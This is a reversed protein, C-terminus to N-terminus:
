ETAMNTLEYSFPFLAVPVLKFHQQAFPIGIITIATLLGSIIHAIALEWGFLILWIVNLGLAVCGTDEKPVVTRGFPTLMGWGFQIAKLGFPIGIITICIVIGGLIYGIGLFLGGLVLWLINGITQLM